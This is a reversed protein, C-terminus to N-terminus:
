STSTPSKTPGPLRGEARAELLELFRAYAIFGAVGGYVFFPTVALEALYDVISRLDPEHVYTSSVYQGLQLPLAYLIAVVLGIVFNVTFMQGFSGTTLTWGRRIADVISRSEYVAITPALSLKTDLWITLIGGVLLGAGFFAGAISPGAISFLSAPLVISVVWVATQLASLTLVRLAWRLELRLEPVLSRLGIYASLPSLVFSLVAAGVGKETVAFQVAIFHVACLALVLPWARITAGVAKDM